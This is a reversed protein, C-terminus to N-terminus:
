TVQITSWEEEGNTFLLKILTHANSIISTFFKSVLILGFSKHVTM